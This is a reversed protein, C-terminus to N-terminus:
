HAVGKLPLCSGKGPIGAAHRKTALWGGSPPTQRHLLCM